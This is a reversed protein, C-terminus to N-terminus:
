GAALSDTTNNVEGGMVMIGGGGGGSPMPMPVEKEVIMPQILVKTKSKDYSMTEQLEKFAGPVPGGGQAAGVIQAAKYSKDYDRQGIPGSGYSSWPIDFAVGDTKDDYTPPQGVPGFHGGRASHKGVSTFGEFEYPAYGAKKLAKFARVAASRSNFSFHDHANSMGAHGADYGARSPNGHLWQIVTGM